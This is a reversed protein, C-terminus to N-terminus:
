IIYFSEYSCLRVLKEELDHSSTKKGGFYNEQIYSLAEQVMDTKWFTKIYYHAMEHSFSSDNPSNNLYIM